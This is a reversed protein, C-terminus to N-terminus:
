NQSLKLVNELMEYSKSQDAMFTLYDGALIETSGNPLIEIDGRTIAVVLCNKPWDIDKICKGDLQSNM